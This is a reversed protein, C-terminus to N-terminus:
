KLTFFLSIITFIVNSFKEKESQDLRKYIDEPFIAFKVKYM